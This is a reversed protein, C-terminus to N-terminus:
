RTSIIPSLARGSRRPTPRLDNILNIPLTDGPKVMLTPGPITGGFTPTHIIRTEDTLQDQLENEAIRARLTTQLVGDHSRLQHPQPFNESAFAAVASRDYGGLKGTILFVLGMLGVLVLSAFYKHKRSWYRVETMVNGKAEKEAARQRKQRFAYAGACAPLSRPRYTVTFWRPRTPCITEGAM